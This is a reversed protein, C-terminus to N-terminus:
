FLYSVRGLKDVSYKCTGIRPLIRQDVKVAARMTGIERNMGRVDHGDAMDPGGLPPAM